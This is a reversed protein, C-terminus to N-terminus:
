KELLHRVKEYKDYLQNLECLLERDMISINNILKQNKESNLFDQIIILKNALETSTDISKRIKDIEDYVNQVGVAHALVIKKFEKINKDINDESMRCTKLVEMSKIRENRIRSIINKKHVNLKKILRKIKDETLM